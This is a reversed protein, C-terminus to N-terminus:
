YEGLFESQEYGALKKDLEMQNKLSEEIILAVKRPVMVPVDYQIQYNVGNHCVTRTEGFPVDAPRPFVKEVRENYYQELAKEANNKKM